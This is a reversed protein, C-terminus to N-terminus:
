KGIGRYVIGEKEFLAKDFVNRGDIFVKVGSRKFVKPTLKLFESHATALIVLKSSLLIEILSSKTSKESVFPDYAEVLMKKRKLKKMLKLGPSERTDGIDPKYSLGLVAIKDKKKDFQAVNFIEIALNATYEPMYNNIKRALILLDHKFGKKKAYDILYYPDVPICHGGVGIGPHHALFGFPKTSAANIVRNVDIGLKSFSLALENVFAINIDRFANEVIKVAEAEKLNNVKTIEGKLIKKYFVVAKFVSKPDNGGIVRPINEVNWKPDGPNIREPCHVYYFDRGLKLGSEKELTPIIIDESVGPNVTSELIVLQGKQLSKGVEKSSSIISTLNPKNNSYAPTPVTIIITQAFKLEEFNTFVKLNKSKKLEKALREDRIDTKKQNLLDRSEKSRVIGIVEFGKREILLALPLGVYGMGIVGVKIMAKSEVVPPM